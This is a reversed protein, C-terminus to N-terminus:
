SYVAELLSDRRDSKRQLQGFTRATRVGDNGNFFNAGAEAYVASAVAPPVPARAALRHSTGVAAATSADFHLGEVFTGCQALDFQHGTNLSKEGPAGALAKRRLHFYLCVIDSRKRLLFTLGLNQAALM